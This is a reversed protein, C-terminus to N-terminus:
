KVENVPYAPKNGQLVAAVNKAAKTKLEAMSEVTYWGAHDTLVVNDMKLLPSDKDPPENEYVDLAAVAIKKEKLADILAKEDVVPGRAVNVLVATPKMLEFQAAGIMGRTKENLPTHLSIFDSQKCLEDLEVKRVGLKSATAEDVFPDYILCEGLEFGKLKRHMVRAILGFGVFGHVKGKLRFFKHKQSMNWGGDRVIKDIQPIRRIASLLLSMGHDSVDEACYDPVNAVYIGRKTATKVDVNDYGVGYRAIVKCKELKEIVENPMPALNVIVGDAEKTLEIVEEPTSADGITLEAGIEDFVGKEEDYKGYRDDTVVVKLNSM